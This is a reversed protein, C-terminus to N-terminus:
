YRRPEPGIKREWTYFKQVVHMATTAVLANRLREPNVDSEAVGQGYDPVWTEIGSAAYVICNKSVDFVRVNVLSYGRLMGITGPDKLRLTQVDGTIVLQADAAKAVEAWGVTELAQGAFKTRVAQDSRVVTAAKRGILEGAIATALDLGDNSEYYGRGADRFPIVVVPTAGITYEAKITTTDPTVLRAGAVIVPGCGAAVAALMVAILVMAMRRTM